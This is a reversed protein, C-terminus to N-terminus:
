NRTKKLAAKIQAANIKLYGVEEVYKQGDTLIWKVFEKTPGSFAGKAVLYLDRAPPSPYVGSQVARIAQHKTGLREEPDIRGNENVDIPIIQLGAVPMGTKMDYAYNLNNYGIGAKDKRVAEAVGPDGYVAVGKLDEQQKGLYKAWTEAAGCSDSRTYVRIKQINQIGTLEGWNKSVSSIWLEVFVKKKLGKKALEKLVPNKQNITPFVADKVVPVYFAKQRVEEPRLERSVMGIDVLGSLADTVGKGAGGASVDIRVKPHTKKFEEAWKVMMPYLAWAGSVRITGSISKEVSKQRVGAKEELAYVNEHSLALITIVLFLLFLLHKNFSERKM